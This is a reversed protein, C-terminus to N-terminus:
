RLLTTTVTEREVDECGQEAIDEYSTQDTWFEPAIAHLTVLVGSLWLGAVAAAWGIYRGLSLQQSQLPSM